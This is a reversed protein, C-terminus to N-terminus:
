AAASFAIMTRDLLSEGAEQVERLRDLFGAFMRILFASPSRALRNSSSRTLAANHHSLNHRAQTSVSRRSPSGM